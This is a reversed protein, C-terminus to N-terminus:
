WIDREEGKGGKLHEEAEGSGGGDVAPPLGKVVVSVVARLAIQPPGDRATKNNAPPLGKVVV